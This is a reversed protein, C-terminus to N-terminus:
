VGRLGVVVEILFSPRSPREEHFQEAWPACLGVFVVSAATEAEVGVSVATGVGTFRDWRFEDGSAGTGQPARRDIQGLDGAAAVAGRRDPPQRADAAVHLVSGAEAGIGDTCGSRVGGM